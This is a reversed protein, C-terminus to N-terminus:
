GWPYLPQPRRANDDARFLWVGEHHALAQRAMKWVMYITQVYKLQTNLLRQLSKYIYRGERVNIVVPFQHATMVRTIGSKLFVRDTSM